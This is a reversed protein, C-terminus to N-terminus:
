SKIYISGYKNHHINIDYVFAAYTEIHILEFPFDPAWYIVKAIITSQVAFSHFHQYNVLSQSPWDM